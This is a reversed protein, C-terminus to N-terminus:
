NTGDLSVKRLITEMIVNHISEISQINNSADVCDIGVWNEGKFHDLAENAITYCNNLYLKNSEHIDKKSDDGAYRQKMLSQSVDVPVKLIITMDEKPIGLLSVEYNYAWNYFQKRKDLNDIKSGQHLINASIYRDAVIISDQQDYIAKWTKVYQIYRDAAYFSSAAYPNVESANSLIDGNLYMKVLESSKSDYTPFSLQYANYGMERLKEYVLKTQTAKGSGDLGDIVILKGM